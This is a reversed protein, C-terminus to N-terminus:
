NLEINLFLWQVENVVDVLLVLSIFVPGSLKSSSPLRAHIITITSLHSSRHWENVQAMFQSLAGVRL